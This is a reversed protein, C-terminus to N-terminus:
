ETGLCRCEQPKRPDPWRHWSSLALSTSCCRPPMSLAAGNTMRTIARCTGGSSQQLAAQHIMDAGEGATLGDAVARVAMNLDPRRAEVQRVARDVEEGNM